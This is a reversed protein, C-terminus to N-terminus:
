RLILDDTGTSKTDIHVKINYDTNNFCEILQKAITVNKVEATITVTAKKNKNFIKKM